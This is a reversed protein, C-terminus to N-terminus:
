ISDGYGQVETHERDEEALVHERSSLHKRVKVILVGGKGLSVFRELSLM